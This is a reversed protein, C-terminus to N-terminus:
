RSFTKPFLHDRRSLSVAFVSSYQEVKKKSMRVGQKGNDLSFSRESHFVIAGGRHAFEVGKIFGKLVATGNPSSIVEFKITQM